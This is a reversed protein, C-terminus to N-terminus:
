IRLNPPMPLAFNTPARTPRRCPRRSTSPASRGANSCGPDCWSPSACLALLAYSRAPRRHAAVSLRDHRRHTAIPRRQPQPRPVKPDQPATQDLPVAARDALAKQLPRRRSPPANLDNTILTLSAPTAASASTACRSPLRARAALGARGRPRERHRGGPPEQSPALPAILLPPENKLRTVFQCGAEHLERWWQYHGYAKDFVYSGPEIPVRRGVVVDNVTAATIELHVPRDADPDRVVHTKLGRTRGNWSAWECLGSLPIPTADILRVAAGGHDPLACAAAASLPAFLEAFMASPRRANADALTSRCVPRSALHYRHAAQANWVAVLERLSSMGGLQAFVLTLLHDWSSFGKVYKDGKHREVIAGFRRRSVAKLLEELVTTQYRM